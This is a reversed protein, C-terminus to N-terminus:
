QDATLMPVSRAGAGPTEGGLRVTQGGRAPSPTRDTKLKFQVRQSRDPISDLDCVFSPPPCAVSAPPRPHPCSAGGAFADGAGGEVEARAQFIRCSVNTSIMGAGRIWIFSLNTGELLALGYVYRAYAARHVQRSVWVCGEGGVPRSFLRSAAKRLKRKELKTQSSKQPVAPRSWLKTQGPATEKEAFHLMCTHLRRTAAERLLLGLLVDIPQGRLAKPKTYFLDSISHEACDIL